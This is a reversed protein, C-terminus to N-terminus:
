QSGTDEFKADLAEPGLRKIAQQTEKITATPPLVEYNMILPRTVRKQM